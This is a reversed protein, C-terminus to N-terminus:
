DLTGNHFNTLNDRELGRLNADSSNSLANNSGSDERALTGNASPATNYFGGVGFVGDNGASVIQFSQASQYQVSSVGSPFGTTYPNPSPSVTTGLNTQFTLSIPNPATSGLNDAEVINVDNPDYGAGNNTSFYALFGSPGNAVQDVNANISDLYYPMGTVAFGTTPNVQVRLRGANFDYLPPNRNANYMNKGVLNNSFPNTPNKGFGTMGATGIVNANTPDFVPSAIGGLFFVLCEHGQMYFEITNAGSLNFDPNGNGNFDYWNSASASPCPFPVRPWFKRFAVTTRLYLQAPTIDGTAGNNPLANIPTTGGNEQLIIRSPFYDGFKNKFDAIAQALSSIEAQVGAAQARRM